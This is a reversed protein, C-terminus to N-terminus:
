DNQNKKSSTIIERECVELEFSLRLEESEEDEDKFLHRRAYFGGAGVYTKEPDAVVDLLLGRATSRLVQITPVEPNDLGWTWNLFDMVAHVREFDFNEMIEEVVELRKRLEIYDNTM